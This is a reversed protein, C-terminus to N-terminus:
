QLRTGGSALVFDRPIRGSRRIPVAGQIDPCRPQIQFSHCYEHPSPAPPADRRPTTPHDDWWAEDTAFYIMTGALPFVGM